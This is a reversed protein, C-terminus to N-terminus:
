NGSRQMQPRGPRQQQPQGPRQQVQQFQHGRSQQIDKLIQSNFQEEANQVKLIKSAPLVEKFKKLYEKELEAIKINTEARAEIAKLCQEESPEAGAEQRMIRRAERNLERKKQQLENYIPFFADAEEQTLQANKTFFERQQQAYEAPSFQGSANPNGNPNGNPRRNQASVSLTLLLCVITIFQKM